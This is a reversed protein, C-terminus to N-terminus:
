VRPIWKGVAIAASELVARNFIWPRLHRKSFLENTYAKGVSVTSSRSLKAQRLVASEGVVLPEDKVLPPLGRENAVRAVM